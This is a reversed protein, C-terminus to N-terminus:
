DQLASETVFYEVVNRCLVSVLYIESQDPRNIIGLTKRFSEITSPLTKCILRQSPFDKDTTMECTETDVVCYAPMRGFLEIMLAAKKLPFDGGRGTKSKARTEWREGGPRSVVM